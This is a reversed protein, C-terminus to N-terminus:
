ILYPLINDIFGRFGIQVDLNISMYDEAVFSLSHFGKEYYHLIYYRASIPGRFEPYLTDYYEGDSYVELKSPIDPLHASLVVSVNYFPNISISGGIFMATQNTFPKSSWSKLLEYDAFPICHKIRNMFPSIYYYLGSTPFELRFNLPNVPEFHDLSSISDDTREQAFAPQIGVGLFLITIGVFILIEKKM